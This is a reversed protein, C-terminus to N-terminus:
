VQDMMGHVASWNGMKFEKQFLERSEALSPFVRVRERKGDEDRPRIDKYNLFKLHRWFIVSSVTRFLNGNKCWRSYRDYVNAMSIEGAVYENWQFENGLEEQVWQFSSEMTLEKQDNLADTLPFEKSNFGTLDFQYLYDAVDQIPVKLIAEMYEKSEKTQVGTFRNDCELVFFRRTNDGAPIVWDENSAIAVNAFSQAHYSGVGKHEIKVTEETILAKLIGAAKKDGGWTLEDLFLLCCGELSNTFQGFLDNQHKIPRFAGQQCTEKDYLGLISGIFHSLIIGKGAGEKSRLVLAVETRKWPTQVCQALWRIVYQYYTDNNKCWINKIHNLVPDISINKNGSPLYHFGKFVNYFPQKEISPYFNINQYKLRKNYTLYDDNLSFCPKWLLGAKRLAKSNKDKCYTSSFQSMKMPVHSRRYKNEHVFHYNHRVILYISSEISAFFYDCLRIIPKLYEDRTTFEELEDRYTFCYQNILEFDFELLSELDFDVIKKTEKEEVPVVPALEHVDLINNFTLFEKMEKNIFKLPITTEKEIYANLEEYIDKEPPSHVFGDFSYVYIKIGRQCLWEMAKIVIQNEINGIFCSLASFKPQYKDKKKKAEKLLLPYMLSIRDALSNCEKRFDDVMAYLEADMNIDIPITGGYLVSNYLQKTQSRALHLRESFLAILNDRNSVYYNIATSPLELKKAFHLALVPHCCIADTDVGRDRYLSNRFVAPLGQCSVSRAYMRNPEGKVTSSYTIELNDCYSKWMKFAGAGNIKEKPNKPNTFPIGIENWRETILRVMDPNPNETLKLEWPKNIYDM